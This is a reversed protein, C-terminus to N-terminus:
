ERENGKFSYILKLAKSEFKNKYETGQDKEIEILDQELNCEPIENDIYKLYMEEVTLNLIEIVEKAKNIKYLKEIQERNYEKSHNKIFNSYRESIEMSFLEYLHLELFKQHNKKSYKSYITPDIKKLLPQKRMNKYSLYQQYKKNIYDLTRKIFKRKIKIIINDISNKDHKAKTLCLIKLNRRGRKIKPKTEKKISFIKPTKKIGFIPKKTNTTRTIDNSIHYRDNIHEDYIKENNYSNFCNENISFKFVENIKEKEEEDTFNNCNKQSVGKEYYLLNKELQNKSNGYYEVNSIFYNVNDELNM